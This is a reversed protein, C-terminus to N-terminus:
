KQGPPNRLVPLHVPLQLTSDRVVDGGAEAEVDIEVPLVSFTVELVFTLCEATGGNNQELNPDISKWWGWKALYELMTGIM